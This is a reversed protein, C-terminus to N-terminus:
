SEQVLKARIFCQHLMCACVCSIYRSSFAFSGIAYFAMSRRRRFSRGAVCRCCSSERLRVRRIYCLLCMCACKAALAMFVSTPAAAYSILASSLADGSDSDSDSDRPVLVYPLSCTGMCPSVVSGWTAPYMNLLSTHTCLIIRYTHHEAVGQTHTHKSHMYACALVYVCVCMRSHARIRKGACYACFVCSIHICVYM